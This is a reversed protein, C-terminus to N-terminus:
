YPRALEVIADLNALARADRQGHRAAMVVRLNLREIAYALLQMPTLEAVLRHLGQLKVLVDRALPHAVEDASTRLQFRRRADADPQLSATIDLLEEDTLGVLPGRMLSGFALTDLPDALTRILALLDQLEQRRFLANGAQSAVTIGRTELAREYRWLDTHTPALLAIDGARLRRETGNAATMTLAGILRTCLGAM